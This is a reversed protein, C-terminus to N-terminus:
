EDYHHLDSMKYLIEQADNLVLLCIFESSATGGVMWPVKASTKIEKVVGIIRTDLFAQVKDGIKIRRM